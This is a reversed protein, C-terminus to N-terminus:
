KALFRVLKNNKLKVEGCQRENVYFALLVIFVLFGVVPIIGLIVMALFRERTVNLDTCYRGWLASVLMAVFGIVTIFLVSLYMVLM